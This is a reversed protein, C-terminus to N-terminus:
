LINFTFEHEHWAWNEIYEIYRAFESKSLATTSKIQFNPWLILYKYLGHMEAPSYGLFEGMQFCYVAHYLSNQPLTRKVKQKKIVIEYMGDNLSLVAKLLKERPFDQFSHNKIRINKIRAQNM